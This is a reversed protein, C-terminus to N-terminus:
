SFFLRHSVTPKDNFTVGIPRAKAGHGTLFKQLKNIFKGDGLQLWMFTPSGELFFVPTPQGPTVESWGGKSILEAAM